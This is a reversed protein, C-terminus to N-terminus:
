KQRVFGPVSVIQGNKERVTEPHGTAPSVVDTRGKVAAAVMASVIYIHGIEPEPLGTVSGFKVDAIGDIDFEGFEDSVRAIDGSPPFKRGDNLKITHPTLNVFEVPIHPFADGICGIGLLAEMDSSTDAGVKILRVPEDCDCGPRLCGFVFRDGEPVAEFDGRSAIKWDGVEEILYVEYERGRGTKGYPDYADGTKRFRLSEFNRFDGQSLLITGGSRYSTGHSLIECKLGANQAAAKIENSSRM